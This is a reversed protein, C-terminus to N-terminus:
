QLKLSETHLFANAAIADPLPISVSASCQTCYVLVTDFREGVFKFEYRGHKGCKCSINGEDELECLLFHVLSQMEPDATKEKEAEDDAEKASIFSDVNEVGADKLIKILAEDADNIAGAVSKEDGIICLDIGSYPCAYSFIQSDFFTQSSLVFSHTNGCVLCPVTIRVKKDPTKVMNMESGGCDCKLKILDGSLSFIGVMGCVMKGCKPCRYAVTTEKSNLIM